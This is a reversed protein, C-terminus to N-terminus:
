AQMIQAASVFRQQKISAHWHMDHRRAAPM